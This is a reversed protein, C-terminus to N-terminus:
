LITTTKAMCECSDTVPTCTNGDQGERGVERGIEDHKSEKGYLHIAAAAAALDSRDHGVRLSEM